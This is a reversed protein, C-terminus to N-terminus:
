PLLESKDKKTDYKFSVNKFEIKEFEKIDDYGTDGEKHKEMDAKNKFTFQCGSRNCHFHTTKQGQFPCYSSSCDEQGRFRYIYVFLNNHM